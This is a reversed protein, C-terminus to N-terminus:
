QSLYDNFYKVLQPVAISATSMVESHTPEKMTDGLFYNCVPVSLCHFNIQAQNLIICEPILSMGILDAGLHSLMRYEAPTGLSPGQHYAYTATPLAFHNQTSAFSNLSLTPVKPLCLFDSVQYWQGTAINKQLAGAASTITVSTIAYEEIISLLLIRMQPLTYGEYYHWRGSLIFFANEKYSAKYLIRAHGELPLMHIAPFNQFNNIVEAQYFDVFPACGSGLIILHM